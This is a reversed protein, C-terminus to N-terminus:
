PNLAHWHASALSRAVFAPEATDASRFTSAMLSKLLIPPLARLAPVQKPGPTEMYTAACRKRSMSPM